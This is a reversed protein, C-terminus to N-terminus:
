PKVFPPQGPSQDLHFPRPSVACEPIAARSYYNLGYRWNRHLYAICVRDRVPAIRLWLPRVSAAWDLAPLVEAKLYGIGATASFAALAIAATRRGTRDLGWVAAAVILPAVCIWSFAPLPARSLGAALAKPLVSAAAPILALLAASAALHWGRHEAAALGIGMLAAAAPLLPLIYGPLKNASLSFFVLVFVFWTVLLRRRPDRWTASSFSVLLLPTWPALAAATIPLYYWFPQPHGLSDSVFRGFHHEVFFKELFVRGNRLYCLLYWPLSAALFPLIVRPAILDRWRRRGAWVLPLALVLPVLGKSLVSLGLMAAAAPLMRVEGEKVWGLSFLMAAALTASMPLDTVGSQSYALWGASTGLIVTAYLAARTGFERALLRWFLALFLVSLVAVPLRPALEPGLGMRFAVAAMWYFLAPKEFWPEGWLRPTVWDGSDAMERAVSAYRPEDPGVLGTQDLAFFYLIWVAPAALLLARVGARSWRRPM